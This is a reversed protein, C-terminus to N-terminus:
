FSSECIGPPILWLGTSNDSGVSLFINEYPHLRIDWISEREHAQDWTQLCHSHDSNAGYQDVQNVPPVKWMKLTGNHSGTIILSEMNPNTYLDTGALSLIPSLHGRMTLYPEFNLVGEVNKLTCFKSVDWLKM